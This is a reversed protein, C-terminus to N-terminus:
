ETEKEKKFYIFALVGFFGITYFFTKISIVQFSFLTLNIVLALTGIIAVVKKGIVKAQEKNMELM